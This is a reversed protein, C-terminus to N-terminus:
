SGIEPKLEKQPPNDFSMDEFNVDDLTGADSSSVHTTETVNADALSGTDPANSFTNDIGFFEHISELFSNFPSMFAEVSGHSAIVSDTANQMIPDVFAVSSHFIAKALPAEGHILGGTFFESVLETGIGLGIGLVAVRFTWKLAKGLWKGTKKEKAPEDAM